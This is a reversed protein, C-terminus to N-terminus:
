RSGAARNLTSSYCIMNVDDSYKGSFFTSLYNCTIVLVLKDALSTKEKLREERESHISQKLQVIQSSLDRMKGDMQQTTNAIKQLLKM